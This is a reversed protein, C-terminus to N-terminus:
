RAGTPKAANTGGKNDAVRQRTSWPAGDDMHYSHCLACGSPVPKAVTQLSAGAEGVHCTRCSALDPILLDTAAKSTPAAHCSECDETKHADHDFWGKRFYRANQSVPQVRWTGGAGPPDIRHCDFCAGGPSFVARIASEAQGPRAGVAGFYASYVQGEAYLGPRRRAMGGLNAPRAPGTGRYFARIDAMVQAPDGHRLTRVTGGIEDFALSHCGSCDQEMDVPQFRTGSSDPRHCDKCALANGYGKDGSLTQAMRAVGGAKSLHLEHPFKLGNDEIPKKDFSIRQTVPHAGGPRVIVAPRFEPHATGFDGADLLRTDTLRTKLDAHCDSCFQQATPQMKGAGEHETHCEVCRGQPVNFASAFMLQVRGGLGPTAKAEALRKPDAHDHVQTHCSTCSTDRVAEFPKVHCAQCNNELSKHALSLKGSSWSQDAHFGVPRTKVESYTAWSWIPFALFCLLILAAFGWASLRKGPLLGRLSFVRAEDKYESADSLAEVREVAITVNAGEHGITLRHGGFRLEAGKASDIEVEQVPRGDVDFDLGSVSKVIIRRQDLREIQAHRPAVALDQLHIDNEALRGISIMTRDIEQPRIIERGDATRSIQRILFSM